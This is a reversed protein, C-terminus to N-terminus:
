GLLIQYVPTTRSSLFLLSPIPLLTSLSHQTTVLKVRHERRFTTIGSNEKGLPIAVSCPPALASCLSCFQTMQVTTMEVGEDVEWV